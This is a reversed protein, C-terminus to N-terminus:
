NSNILFYKQDIEKLLYSFLVYIFTFGVILIAIININFGIKSVLILVVYGVARSINLITEFFFNYNPEDKEEIKQKAMCEYYIISNAYEFIPNCISNIINYIIILLYGLTVSNNLYINIDGFIMSFTLILVMISQIIAIPIFSKSFSKKSVYKGLIYIIVMSIITIFSNINGLSFENKVILFTIITILTSLVGYSSIGRLFTKISLIKMIQTQNSEKIKDIFCKVDIKQHELNHGKITFSNLLSLFACLSLIIFVMSYSGNTICYGCMIPIIIGLASKLIDNITFYRKFNNESNLRKILIQQSYYYFADGLSNLIGFLVIYKVIKEGVILLIICKIFNIFLGIRFLNMLNMKKLSNVLYFFIPYTLYLTIYYISVDVINGQTIKLFYIGLFVNQFIAIIKGALDTVLFKKWM